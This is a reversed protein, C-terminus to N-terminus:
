FADSRGRRGCAIDCKATQVIRLLFDLCKKMYHTSMKLFSNYLLIMTSTRIDSQRACGDDVLIETYRSM